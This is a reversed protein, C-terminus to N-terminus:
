DEKIQHQEKMYKQGEPSLFFDCWIYSLIDGGAVSVSHKSGLPIHLLMNETMIISEGAAYCTCKCAELGFFLQDLMPHDHEAVRDPGETYVSGMCFRPVLGEQLIMRNITKSSKIAESYVPCDSFARLFVSQHCDAHDRIDQLDEEKLTKRFRIFHAESGEEVQICYPKNYAPRIIYKTNLRYKEGESGFVVDGKLIVLVDYTYLQPLEQVCHSGKVSFIGTILGEIENSLVHRVSVYGDPENDMAKISITETNM